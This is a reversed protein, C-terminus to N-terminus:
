PASLDSTTSFEAAVASVGFAVAVGSSFFASSLLWACLAADSAAVGAVEVLAATLSFESAAAVLSAAVASVGTASLRAAFGAVM